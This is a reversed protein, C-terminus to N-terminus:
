SLYDDLYKELQTIDQIKIRNELMNQDIKTYVSASYPYIRVPDSQGDQWLALGGSYSGLYFAALVTTIIRKIRMANETIEISVIYIFITNRLM